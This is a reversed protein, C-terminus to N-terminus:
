QTKKRRGGRKKELFFSIVNGSRRIKIKKSAIDAATKLYNRVTIVNEDSGCVLRGGKEDTLQNIYGLYEEIKKRKSESMRPAAKIESIPVTEFNPM